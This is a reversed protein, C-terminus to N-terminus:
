ALFNIGKEALKSLLPMPAAGPFDMRLKSLFKRLWHGGRQRPFGQPWRHISFRHILVVLISATRTQYRPLLEIPVMTIVTHCTPCRYRKFWLVELFGVVHRPVYGHGWVKQCGKGCSPRDWNFGKGAEHLEVLVVNTHAIMHINPPPRLDLGAGAV